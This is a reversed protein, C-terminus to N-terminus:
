LNDRQKAKHYMAKFKAMRNNDDLDHFNANEQEFKARDTNIKIRQANAVISREDDDYIKNKYYRPMSIKKGDHLNCYMRNELDAKHWRIM